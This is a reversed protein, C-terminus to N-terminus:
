RPGITSNNDDVLKILEFGRVVLSLERLEYLLKTILSYIQRDNKTAYSLRKATSPPVACTHPPCKRAGGETDNGRFQKKSPLPRQNKKADNGANKLDAERKKDPRSLCAKNPKRGNKSHM